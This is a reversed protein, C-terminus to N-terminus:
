AVELTGAANIGNTTAAAASAVVQLSLLDGAVVSVTHTLDSASIAAGTITATIGTAVGNKRLTITLTQAGGPAVATAFYFNKLTGAQSIPFQVTNEATAAAAHGVYRTDGGNINFNTSSFHVPSPLGVATWTDTATRKIWGASNLAEIAALDNTLALTPDGGVGGGNTVGIGNAPGTLTRFAYTSAATRALIGSSSFATLKDLMAGGPAGGDVFNTGNGVIFHNLAAAGAIQFGTTVNWVGSPSLGAAFSYGGGNVQYYWELFGTPSAAGQVIRVYAAFDVTQSSGGSNTAWGTGSWRTRPSYQQAGPAAPTTNEVVAGDVAAAGIGDRTFQGTKGVFAGQWKVRNSVTTRIDINSSDSVLLTSNIGEAASGTIRVGRSNATGTFPAGNNESYYGPAEFYECHDIRVAAGGHNQSLLGPAYVNAYDFWAGDGSSLSNAKCDILSMSQINYSGDGDNGNFSYDTIANGSFTLRAFVAEIVGWSPTVGAGPCNGQVCLGGTEGTANSITLDRVIPMGGSSTAGFGHIKLANGCLSNANLRLNAIEFGLVAGLAPPNVLKILGEPSANSGFSRIVCQTQGGSPGLLFQPLPCVTYPYLFTATSALDQAHSVRYTGSGGETGTLQEILTTGNVAGVIASPLYVKGSTVTVVATDDSISVTVEPSTVTMDVPGVTQPSGDVTYQGIGGAAKGIDAVIKCATVGVGTITQGRALPITPTNPVTLTNGSISAGHAIGSTRYQDGFQMPTVSYAPGSLFRLGYRNAAAYEAAAAIAVTDNSTGNRTANFPSQDPTAGLTNNNQAAIALMTGLATMYRENDIGTVADEETAKIANDPAVVLRGDSRIAGKIFTTWETLSARLGALDNDLQTGPFSNNAQGQQFGTYSYDLTYIVPYAM